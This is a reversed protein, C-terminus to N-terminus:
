KKEDEDVVEYDADVAGEDSSAEPQGEPAEGEAGPQAQTAAALEGAVAQFSETEEKIRTLDESALADKLAQVATEVKTKLEDQIKEKDDELSKETQYIAQEAQNKADVLERAAKDAEANAEAETVMKEVDEDSLGGASEIKISQEKGTDKDTASVHVIGNADIDFTM